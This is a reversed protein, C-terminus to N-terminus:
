FIREYREKEQEKIDGSKGTHDNFIFIDPTTGRNVEVRKLLYKIKVDADM